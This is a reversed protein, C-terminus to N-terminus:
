SERQWGTVLGAAAAGGSGPQTHCTSRRMEADYTKKARGRMAMPRYPLSGADRREQRYYNPGKAAQAYAQVRCRWRSPPRLLWCSHVFTTRMRGEICALRRSSTPFTTTLTYTHVPRYDLKVNGKDDMWSLTHKM